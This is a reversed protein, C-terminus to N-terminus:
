RRGFLVPDETGAGDELVEFDDATLGAVRHGKADSVIVPVVIQNVNLRFKAGSEEQTLAGGPLMLCCLM